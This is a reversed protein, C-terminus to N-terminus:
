NYFVQLTARNASGETASYIGIESGMTWSDPLMLIGIYNNAAWGARDVVVQVLSKIDPSTFSNSATFPPSAWAVTTGSVTDHVELNHTHAGDFVAATDVDYVATTVNGSTGNIEVCYITMFASTITAGNPVNLQFEFGARELNGDPNGLYVSEGAGADVSLAELGNGYSAGDRNSATVETNVETPAGAAPARWFGFPLTLGLTIAFVSFAIIIALHKKM